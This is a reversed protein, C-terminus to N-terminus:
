LMGQAMERVTSALRQMGTLPGDQGEQVVAAEDDGEGMGSLDAEKRGAAAAMAEPEGAMAESSGFPHAAEPVSPLSQHIYRRLSVMRIALPRVLLERVAPNSTLLAFAEVGGSISKGEHQGRLIAALSKNYSLLLHQSVSAHYSSRQVNLELFSPNVILDGEPNILAVHGCRKFLFLFKGAKAVLDQDNIVAWTDPVREIMENAFAHNGTRPAGYTYCTVSVPRGRAGGSGSSSGSNGGGGNSTGPPGPAPAAPDVTSFPSPVTTYGWRQLEREIDFACLTGVAGGLSHGTVFIRFPRGASSATSSSASRMSGGWSAERARAGPSGPLGISSSGRLPSALSLLQSAAADLEAEIHIHGGPGAEAAEAARAAAAAEALEAEKQEHARSCCRVVTTEFPAMGGGGGGHKSSGTCKGSGDEGGGDGGDKSGGNVGSGGGSSSGGSIYAHQQGDLIQRVRLLVQLDLGEGNWSALFGSHIMPRSGLWLKGRVPPHPSRWFQADAKVNALSQTGRFTIVLTDPGWCLLCNMDHVPERIWEYHDCNYLALATQLSSVTSQPNFHRYIHMCFYSMKLATEFCFLPEDPLGREAFVAPAEAETWAFRQLLSHLKLACDKPESPCYLFAETIDLITWSIYVPTLGLWLQLNANCSNVNIYFVTAVAIIFFFSAYGRTRLLLRAVVNMVRHPTYALRRYEMLVFFMLLLFVASYVLFLGGVAASLGIAYGDLTCEWNFSKCDEWSLEARAKRWPIKDTCSNDLCVFLSESGFAGMSSATAAAILAELPVWLLCFLLVHGLRVARRHGPSAPEWDEADSDKDVDKGGDQGEVDAEPLPASGAKSWSGPRSGGNSAGQRSSSSSPGAAAAATGGGGCYCCALAAACRGLWGRAAWRQQMRHLTGEPFISLPRSLSCFFLTNVTTMSLLFFVDMAPAYLACPYALSYINSGLFTALNIVQLVLDLGTMALLYKRQRGWRITTPCRLAALTRAGFWAGVALLPVLCVSAVCINVIETQSSRM